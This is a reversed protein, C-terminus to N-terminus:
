LLWFAGLCWCGLRRVRQPLKAGEPPCRGRPTTSACDVRRGPSGRRWGRPRAAEQSGADTSKSMWDRVHEAYSHSCFAYPGVADEAGDLQPKEEAGAGAASLPCATVDIQHHDALDCPPFEGAQQHRRAFGRASLDVGDAHCRRLKPGLGPLPFGDDQDSFGPVAISAM